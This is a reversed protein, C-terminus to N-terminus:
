RKYTFSGNKKCKPYMRQAANEADTPGTAIVTVMYAKGDCLVKVCWESALKNESNDSYNIFSVIFFSVLILSLVIIKKNM